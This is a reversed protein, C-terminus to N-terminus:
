PNPTTYPKGAYYDAQLQEMQDPRLRDRSLDSLAQARRRYFEPDTM